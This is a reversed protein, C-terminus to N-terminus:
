ADDPAPWMPRDVSARGACGGTRGIDVVAFGGIMSADSGVGCGSSGAEGCGDAGFQVVDVEAVADVRRELPQQACLERTPVHDDDSV